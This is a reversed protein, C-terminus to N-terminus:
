LGQLPISNGARDEDVFTCRRFPCAVQGRDDM